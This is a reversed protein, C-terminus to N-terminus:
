ETTEDDKNGLDTKHTAYYTILARLGGADITLVKTDESGHHLKAGYHEETSNTEHALMSLLQDIKYSDHQLRSGQPDKLGAYSDRCKILATIATRLEEQYYLPHMGGYRYNCEKTERGLDNIIRDYDIM